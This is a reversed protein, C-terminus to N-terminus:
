MRTRDLRLNETVWAAYATFEIEFYPGLTLDPTPQNSGHAKQSWQMPMDQLFGNCIVSATALNM